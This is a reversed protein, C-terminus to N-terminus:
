RTTPRASSSTRGPASQDRLQGRRRLPILLGHGLRRLLLVAAAPGDRRRPAHRQQRLLLLRDRRAGDVPRQDHFLGPMKYVWFGLLIGWLVSGLVGLILGALAFGRPKWILAIGSLIAGIPCILGFCLVMGVLSVIFGAVGLGNTQPMPPPQAPRPPPPPPNYPPAQSMPPLPHQDNPTPLIAGKLRRPPQPNCTGPKKVDLAHDEIYKRRPEVDEGMLVSFLKEAESAADYSVRLLVRNDPEDDHGLAARRGDRGAGQLTQHGDRAQRRGHIAGILDRLNVVSVVGPADGSSPAENM